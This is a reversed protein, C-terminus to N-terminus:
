KQLDEEGWKDLSRLIHELSKGKASLNYEVKPPVVPFVKRFILGDKELERIRITVEDIANEYEALEKILNLVSKLDEKRGKRIQIKM